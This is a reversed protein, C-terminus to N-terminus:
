LSLDIDIERKRSSLIRSVDSEKTVSLLSYIMDSDPIHKDMYQMDHPIRVLRKAADVLESSQLLGSEPLVTKRVQSRVNMFTFDDLEKVTFSPTFKSLNMEMTIGHVHFKVDTMSSPIDDSLNRQIIASSNAEIGTSSARLTTLMLPYHRGKLAFDGGYIRVRSHLGPINKITSRILIDLPAVKVQLPGLASVHQSVAKELSEYVEGKNFLQDEIPYTDDAHRGFRYGDMKVRIRDDEEFFSFRVRVINLQDDLYYSEKEALPRVNTNSLVHNM